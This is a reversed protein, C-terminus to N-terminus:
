LYFLTIFCPLLSLDFSNKYNNVFPFIINDFTKKHSTLENLQTVSIFVLWTLNVIEYIMTIFLIPLINMIIILIIYLIFSIICFFISIIKGCIGKRFLNITPDIVFSDLMRFYRVNIHFLLSILYWGFPLSSILIKYM